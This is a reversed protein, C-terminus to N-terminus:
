KILPNDAPEIPEETKVQETEQKIEAKPKDTKLKNIAEQATKKVERYESKLKEELVPMIRIDQMGSLAQIIAVQVLKSGTNINELFADVIKKNEFNSLAKVVTIVVEDNLDNLSSILPDISIVDKFIGLAEATSIRVDVSPDSLLTEDLNPVSSKDDIAVLATVAAIRVNPSIDKLSKKFIEGAESDNLEALTRIAELRIREKQDVVMKRLAPIAEEAKVAKLIEIIDVITSTKLNSSELSILLQQAVKEGEAILNAKASLRTKPNSLEDVWKQTKENYSASYLFQGSLFMLLFCVVFVKSNVM